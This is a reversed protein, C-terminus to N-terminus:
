ILDAPHVQQGTEPAGPECTIEFIKRPAFGRTKAPETRVFSITLRDGEEVSPKRVDPKAAAVAQGLKRILDSKPKVWVTHRTDVDEAINIVLSTETDGNLNPGTYLETREVIGTVSDGPTTFKFTPPFNGANEHLFQATDSM